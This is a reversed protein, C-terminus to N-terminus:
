CHMADLQLVRHLFVSVVSLSVPQEYDEDVNDDIDDDCDHEDDYSSPRRSKTFSGFKVVLHQM